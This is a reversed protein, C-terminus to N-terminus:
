SKVIFSIPIETSHTIKELGRHTEVEASYKVVVRENRQELIEGHHYLWNEFYLIGFIIKEGTALKAQM